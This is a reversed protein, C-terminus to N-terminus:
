GPDRAAARRRVARPSHQLVREIAPSALLREVSPIARRADVM